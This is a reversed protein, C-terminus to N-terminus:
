NDDYDDSAVGSIRVFSSVLFLFCDLDELVLLGANSAATIRFSGVIM